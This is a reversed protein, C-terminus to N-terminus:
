VGKRSSNNYTVEMMEILADIDFSKECLAAMQDYQTRYYERADSESTLANILYPKGVLEALASIVSVNEFFGHIYTGIICGSGQLKVVGLLGDDETNHAYGSQVRTVLSVGCNLATETDTRAPEDLLWHYTDSWVTKGHHIEYGTGALKRLSALAELQPDCVEPSSQFQTIQVTKDDSFHTTVPLLSLGEVQGKIGDAGSPDVLLEGLMQYGGCLGIVVGGQQVYQDLYRDWGTGKLFDLAKLTGKSGPIVILDPAERRGSSDTSHELEGPATVYSVACSSHRELEHLDTMNAAFPLDIVAVTMVGSSGQEDEINQTFSNQDAHKAQTEHRHDRQTLSDEQELDVQIYDVVALVPKEVREELMLIGPELLTKDGRFKNIVLGQVRNREDESLLELTGLLAAFVGGKDIDGVLIVPLDLEEALGMNVIDHERLNIEAPSGAGEVIIFDHDQALRDFAERVQPLLGPKMEQYERATSTKCPTGNVIVQSKGASLPKLLIPNMDTSPLLNCAYAQAAQARGIEGGDATVASNLAMNQSKFPAVRYGRLTLARCLGLVLASKGVNSATGQIMLAGKM